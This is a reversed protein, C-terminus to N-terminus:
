SRRRRELLRELLGWLGLTLLRLGWLRLQARRRERRVQQLAQDLVRLESQRRIGDWPRDAPPLTLGHAGVLDLELQLLREDARLRDLTSVTKGKKGAKGTASAAQEREHERRLRAQRWEAVVEMAAGYFREEEPEAEVTVLEPYKPYDTYSRHPATTTRVSSGRPVSAGVSGAPRGAAGGQQHEAGQGGQGVQQGVQQGAVGIHQRLEEVSGELRALAERVEPLDETLARELKDLREARGLRELKDVRRKLAALEYATELPLEGSRPLESENRGEHKDEYRQLARSLPETLRIDGDGDGEGQQTARSLTRESVGLLEATRQRGHAALLDQLLSGLRGARPGPGSGQGSGEVGGNTGSGQETVAAGRGERQGVGQSGARASIAQCKEATLRVEGPLVSTAPGRQGPTTWDTNRYVPVTEFM